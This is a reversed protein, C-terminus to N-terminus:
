NCSDCNSISCYRSLFNIIEQAGINDFCVALYQAKDMLMYAERLQEQKATMQINTCDTCFTIEKLKQSLCCCIQCDQVKYASVTYRLSSASSYITYTFKYVGQTLKDGANLGLMESTVEYTIYGTTGINAEDAASDPITLSVITADPLTIDLFLRSTDIDAPDLNSVGTLDYGDPDTIPNYLPTIDKFYFSTCDSKTTINQKLQFNPM